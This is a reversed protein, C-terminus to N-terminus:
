WIYTCIRKFRGVPRSVCYEKTSLICQSGIEEGTIYVCDNVYVGITNIQMILGIM